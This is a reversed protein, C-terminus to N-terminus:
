EHASVHVTQVSACIVSDYDDVSSSNSEEKSSGLLWGPEKCKAGLAQYTVEPNGRNRGWAPEEPTKGEAKKVDGEKPESRIQLKAEFTAIM